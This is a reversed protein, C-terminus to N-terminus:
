DETIHIRKEYFLETSYTTTYKQQNKERVSSTM